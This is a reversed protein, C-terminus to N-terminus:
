RINDLIVASVEAVSMDTTDIILDASNRCTISKLWHKASGNLRNGRNRERQEMTNEDIDLYVFLADFPTCKNRYIELVEESDILSDVIINFGQKAITELVDPITIYLKSCLKGPIIEYTGDDHKKAYCIDNPITVEPNDPHLGLFKDGLMGLYTDASFQLWGDGLSQQLSHAVSSKGSSSTGILVIIM